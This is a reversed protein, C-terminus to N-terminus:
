WTKRVQLSVFRGRGRAHVRDYGHAATRVPGHGLFPPDADLLYEAFLSIRTGRLGAAGEDCFQYSLGLDLTTWSGVPVVDVGRDDEYGGAHNVSLTGSWGGRSWAVSGRGRWALSGFPRDLSRTVPSTEILRSDFSLVRNVNADLVFRNAGAEFAYRATFDLGDTSTEASNTVRTDLVLDVDAPTAGGNSFGPGTVDFTRRAAEIIATLEALDPSRDIIPEFAPDGVVTVRATPMAIRDAFRVSYYTVSLSLGPVSAPAFEAGATWTRSTEPRIEPDSGQLVAVIEGPVAESQDRYVLYSPA